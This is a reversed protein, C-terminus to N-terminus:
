ISPVRQFINLNRSSYNEEIYITYTRYCINKGSFTIIHFLNKVFLQKMLIDKVLHKQTKTRTEHLFPVVEDGSCNRGWVTLNTMKKLKLNNMSDVTFDEPIDLTSDLTSILVILVDHRNWTLCKKLETFLQCSGLVVAYSEKFLTKFNRDETLIYNDM